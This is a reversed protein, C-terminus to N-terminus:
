SERLPGTGVNVFELWERPQPLPLPGATILRVDGLRENLSSWRWDEAREVLGARVPNAEVYRVARFYYADRGIESTRFRNQYVHGLGTTKTQYRLRAAHQSTLRQLYHSLESAQKPWAIFHWHNPMLVYAVIRLPVAHLAREALYLFDDYDQPSAFLTRRENGRNVVHLIANPGFTRRCRAM